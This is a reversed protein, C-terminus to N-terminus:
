YNLYEDRSIVGDRNRDYATFSQNTGTWEQRTLVGDGNYDMRRFEDSVLRADSYEYSTVRGDNDRDLTDFVAVEYPWESRSLSGNADRDLDRFRGSRSAPDSPDYRLPQEYVVDTNIYERLTVIGDGNRDARRFATTDTWEGRTLLADRNRDMRAFQEELGRAGTGSASMSVYEDMSIRNDRNRDVVDFSQTEGRWEGRNLIGNHNRDLTNFRLEAAGGTLQNTYEDLTIRNDRNRDVLDFSQTEGRWEGRNVVGNHNRDLDAFRMEVAGAAPPNVYEDVTIRNDRNRDLLEFPLSEGVWEARAVVGDRNLDLDGFRAEASGEPLPNAFEDRTVVGDHNRDMRAFSIPTLDTRWESRSIADDRNRDIASFTDPVVPAPAAVVPPPAADGRYRNVFEERSLVHDGNADMARFNGSHGGYEEQTLVGDGNRDRERFTQERAATLQAMAAVPAALAAAAALAPIWHIRM